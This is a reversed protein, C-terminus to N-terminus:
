GCGGFVIAAMIAAMPILFVLCELMIMAMVAIVTWVQHWFGGDRALARDVIVDVFRLM